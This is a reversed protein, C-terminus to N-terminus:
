WWRRRRRLFWRCHSDEGISVANQQALRRALDPKNLVDSIMDEAAVLADQSGASIMVHLPEDMETM